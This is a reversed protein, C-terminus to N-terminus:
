RGKPEEAPQEFGRHINLALGGILGLARVNRRAKSMAETGADCDSFTSLAVTPSPQNSIESRDNTVSIQAEADLKTPGNKTTM